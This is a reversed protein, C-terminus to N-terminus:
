GDKEQKSGAGYLPFLSVSFLSIIVSDIGALLQHHM